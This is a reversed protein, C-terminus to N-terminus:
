KSEFRAKLDALTTAVLQAEEAGTPLKEPPAKSSVLTDVCHYKAEEFLGDSEACVERGDVTPKAVIMVETGPKGTYVRALLWTGLEHKDLEPRKQKRDIPRPQQDAKWVYYHIDRAVDYKGARYFGKVGLLEQLVNVTEIESGSVVVRMSEPQLQYTSSARLPVQDVCGALLLFVVVGRM